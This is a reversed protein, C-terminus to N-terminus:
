KTPIGLGLATCYKNCVHRKFFKQIGLAGLNTKGFRLHKACHIAPDTLLLTEKGKKDFTAVGQLDCVLLYGDTIDHTFHSFALALELRKRGNEDLTKPDLVFDMNNTYKIFNHSDSRFRKEYVLFRPSTVRKDETKYIRVVKAMLFKMRINPNASTRSIKGNFEFALKASITQLELDTMYRQRDLDPVKPLSLMEKFVVDDVRDGTSPSTPSKKEKSSYFLKGYYALRVSGKAFPKPAIQFCCKKVKDELKAFSVIDQISEPLAFTLITGELRPLESWNPEKTELTFKRTERGSLTSPARSVAYCTVAVSRMVSETVSSCITSVKTTDMKEISQGYYTEFVSVMKDCESNIRGFYYLLEKRRMEGFLEQLPRDSPHGNVYTDAHSHYRERGHPPADGLHFIIRTGSRLPWSLTVAKDLGGIVDEPLDGGGSARISAM